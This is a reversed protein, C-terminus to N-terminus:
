SLLKTMLSVYWDIFQAAGAKEVPTYRGPTYAPSNIGKQNNEIIRKCARPGITKFDALQGDLTYSEASRLLPVRTFRWSGIDNELFQSPLDNAECMNHFDTELKHETNEAIGATDRPFIKCLSPHNGACHYCERNNEFFSSGTEM